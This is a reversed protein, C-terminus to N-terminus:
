RVTAVVLTGDGSDIVVFAGILSLADTVTGPSVCGSKLQRCAGYQMEEDATCFVSEAGDSRESEFVGTIFIRRDIKTFMAALFLMM